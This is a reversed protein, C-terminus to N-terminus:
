YDQKFEAPSALNSLARFAGLALLLQAALFLPRPYVGALYESLGAGASGQEMAIMGALSVLLGTAAAVGVAYVAIGVALLRLGRRPFLLRRRLSSLRLFVAVAVAALVLEPVWRPVGARSAPQYLWQLHDLTALFSMLLLTLAIFLRKM